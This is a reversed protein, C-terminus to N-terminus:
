LRGWSKRLTLTLTKTSDKPIPPDFSAQVLFIHSAPNVRVSGIGGSVNGAGEDWTYAVEVYHNGPVYPATSVGTRGSGGSGSPTSDAPVLGESYAYLGWNSTNRLPGYRAWDYMRSALGVGLGRVVVDYTESTHPNTVQTSTDTLDPYERLQYTVTLQDIPGKTITTPSGNEDRVLARTTLPGSTPSVGLESIIGTGDGPPFIYTGVVSNFGEGDPGQDVNSLSGSGSTALHFGLQTDGFSPAANGSGIHCRTMYNGTAMNDMGSDTILNDQWPAVVEHSGPIESGDPAIQCREIMFRGAMKSNQHIITM